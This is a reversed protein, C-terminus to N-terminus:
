FFSFPTFFTFIDFVTLFHSFFYYFYHPLNSLFPTLISVALNNYKRKLPLLNNNNKLLVFSKAAALESIERHEQSQIESMDISNYPNM